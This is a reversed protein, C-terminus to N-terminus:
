GVKRGAWKSQFTVNTNEGLVGKMREREKVHQNMECKGGNTKAEKL